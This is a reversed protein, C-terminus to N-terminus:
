PCLHVHIEVFLQLGWFFREIRFIPFGHPREAVPHEVVHQVIRFRDPLSGGPLVGGVRDFGLEVPGQREIRLRHFLDVL